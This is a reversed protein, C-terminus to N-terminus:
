RSLAMVLIVRYCCQAVVLMAKAVGDDAHSPLVPVGRGLQRSLAAGAHSSM